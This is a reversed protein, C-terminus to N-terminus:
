LTKIKNGDLDDLKTAKGLGFPPMGTYVTQVSDPQVVYIEHWLGVDGSRGIKKNYAVWASFHKNNKDKAYARLDEYSRWYQVKLFPNGLWSEQGLFGNDPQCQLEKSIKNMAFLFPLWKHIKWIKNIRIGVLFVVFPADVASM